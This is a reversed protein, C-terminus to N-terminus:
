NAPAFAFFIVGPDDEYVVVETGDIAHYMNRFTHALATADGEYRRVRLLAYLPDAEAHVMADLDHHLANLVNIFDLHVAVFYAPVPLALFADRMTEYMQAKKQIDAYDAEDKSKLARQFAVLEHELGARNQEVFIRAAANMYMRHAETSDAVVNIDGRTYLTDRSEHALRSMSDDLVQEADRGIGRQAKSRVIDQFFQIAFQGTLSEPPTYEAEAEPRIPEIEKLLGEKWDEMGNNNVDTVKLAVRATPMEAAARQTQPPPAEVGFRTVVYSGAVIAFGVIFAGLVSSNPRGLM